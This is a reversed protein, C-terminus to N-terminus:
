SSVSNLVAVSAFKLLADILLGEPIGLKSTLSSVVTKPGWRGGGGGGFYEGGGTGVCGTLIGRCSPESISIVSSGECSVRSLSSVLLWAVRTLGSVFFVPAGNAFTGLALSM